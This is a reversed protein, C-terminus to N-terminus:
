KNLSEMYTAFDKWTIKKGKAKSIKGACWILHAKTVYLDGIHADNTDKVDLEIGNNKIDMKVDFKKISVNM